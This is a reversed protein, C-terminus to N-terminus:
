RMQAREDLEVEIDSMLLVLKLEGLHGAVINRM